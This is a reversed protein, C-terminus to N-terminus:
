GEAPPEAPGRGSPAARPGRPRRPHTAKRAAEYAELKERQGADLLAVLRGRFAERRERLARRNAELALTAEGVARPDPQSAELAERQRKRLARGEELIPRLEEREKERLERWAATQTETLGLYEVLAAGPGEARHSRRPREDAAPSAPLAGAVGLLALATVGFRLSRTM